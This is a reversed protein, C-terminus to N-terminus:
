KGPSSPVAPTRSQRILLRLAAAILLVSTPKVLASWDLAATSEEWDTAVHVVMYVLIVEILSQKLQSVSEVRMWRPLREQAAASWDLVFGFAIAFAFIILVIGFLIADTAHMVYTTVGKSESAGISRAAGVLDSGGEWFMLMAGLVAGLVAFLLIYRFVLFLQVM